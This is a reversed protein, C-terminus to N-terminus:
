PSDSFSLQLGIVTCTWLVHCIDGVPSIDTGGPWEDHLQSVEARNFIPMDHM